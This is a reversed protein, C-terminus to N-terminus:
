FPALTTLKVTQTPEERWFQYKKEEDWAKLVIVGDVQDIDVRAESEGDVEVFLRLGNHGVMVHLGVRDNIPITAELKMVM